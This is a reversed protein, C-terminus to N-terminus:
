SRLDGGVAHLAPAWGFLIVSAGVIAVSFAMVRVDMSFAAWPPLQDPVARILAALAWRGVSLGIVGGIVALMLAAVNACAILLLVGVAGSVTGMAGRYNRVFMDHLPTVFPTVVHDKDSADWIPQHARKLDADAQEPTVGPKLRGIGDGSYSNYPQAVDGQMP